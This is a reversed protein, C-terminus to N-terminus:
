DIEVYDFGEWKDAKIVMVEGNAQKVMWDGVSPTSESEKKGDVITEVTELKDGEILQYAWIPAVKMGLATLAYRVGEAQGPTLQDDHAVLEVGAEIAEPSLARKYALPEDAQDAQPACGYVDGGGASMAFHPGPMIQCGYGLGSLGSRLFQIVEDPLNADKIADVSKVNCGHALFAALEESIEKGANGGWSGKLYLVPENSPLTVCLAGRTYKKARNMDFM